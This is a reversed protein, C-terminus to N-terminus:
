ERPALRRRHAFPDGTRRGKSWRGRDGDTLLEIVSRAAGATSTHATAVGRRGRRRLLLSPIHGPSEAHEDARANRGLYSSPDSTEDDVDELLGPAPTLYVIKEAAMAVAIARSAERCQRQPPPTTPRRDDLRRPSSRTSCRELVSARVHHRRRCLGALPGESDRHAPGCGRGLSRRWPDLAGRPQHDFRTDPQDATLVMPRHRAHRTQSASAARFEPAKGVAEDRMSRRRRM